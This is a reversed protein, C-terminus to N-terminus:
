GVTFHIEIKSYLIKVTLVVKVMRTFGSNFAFSLLNKNCGCKSGIGVVLLLPWGTVGCSNAAM